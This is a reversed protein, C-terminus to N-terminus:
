ASRRRCAPALSATDTNTPAQPSAHFFRDLVVGSIGGRYPELRMGVAKSQRTRLRRTYANPHYDLEQVAHQVKALTAPSVRHPANFAHSKGM